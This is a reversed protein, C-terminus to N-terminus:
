GAANLPGLDLAFHHAMVSRLDAAIAAIPRNADIVKCRGPEAKAIALFGERLRQHFSRDMREYRDEAAQGTATQHRNAARSLGTELPLDLIITLSPETTGVVRHRLTQLWGLDIGHGYGQYAITSDAFRDCLVWEGAALAPRIVRDLHDARAAFHLLVETDPTWRGPEGEVLLRRIDEAGPAGGPERTLRVAQGAQRLADALLRIQTSKGGGEGGEFTIFRNSKPNENATPAGAAM